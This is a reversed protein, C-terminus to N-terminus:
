NEEEVASPYGSVYDVDNTEPARNDFEIRVDEAPNAGLLRLVEPSVHLMGYGWMSGFEHTQLPVNNHIFTIRM